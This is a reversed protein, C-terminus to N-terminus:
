RLTSGIGAERALWAAVSRRHWLKRRGIWFPPVPCHSEFHGPSVSCFAAATDRDMADPWNPLHDSM